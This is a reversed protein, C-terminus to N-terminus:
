KMLVNKLYTYSKTISEYPDITIKDQEIFLHKVGAQKAKAFISRFDISGTGVEAFTVGTLLEMSKKGETGAATLSATNNKDMDKVHWAVFRGPAAAFLKVPDFGSKVAWFLDLEFSVLAPDTAKLLTEYGTTQTGALKKFEWYHNHYGIQIGAKKCAEGAKNLQDAMFKYDDPTLAQDWLNPPLVPVIFYQQGLAAALDIQPQLAAANGNGPTLYENLQYHGSPTSLHHSQLLSQLAAPKLGWFTGKDQAGQYGYFTEVENYGIAAVKAITGAADQALQDRLTYLQLGTKKPLAGAAPRASLSGPLLMGAALLGAQHMFSRRSTHM